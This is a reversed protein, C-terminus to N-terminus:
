IKKKVIKYPKLILKKIAENWKLLKNKAGHHTIVSEANVMGLQLAFEIDNKKILGAIFSSGFADGAGTSEVVKVNHPKVSFIYKGDYAHVGEKGETIVVIDCTKSLDKLSNTIDKGTLLSAEESNLILVDTNALVKSLFKKGKKALYSSPNFSFKIDNDRAFIALKELAKFSKGMMSSAYFWKTKLKRLNIDEFRLNDCCGKYTLITRDRKISDLIISYGSMGGVEKVGIFDVNDTKLLDIIKHGNEDTAIKGLYAVKLGLRSFSVASNTGGGGTTFKLDKIIIKSGTPYALLDEEGKTTKIKILESDTDAFVDITSSGITIIDYM